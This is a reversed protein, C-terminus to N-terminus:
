EATQNIVVILVYTVGADDNDDQDEIASVNAGLWSTDQLRPLTDATDAAAGTAASSM